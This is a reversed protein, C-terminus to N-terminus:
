ALANMLIREGSRRTCTGRSSRVLVSLSSCSCRSAAVDLSRMPEPM